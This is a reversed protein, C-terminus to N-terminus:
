QANPETNNAANIIKIVIPYHDSTFVSPLIDWELDGGIDATCISIDVSSGSIHTPINSNLCLLNNENLLNDIMRGRTDCRYEDWSPHHANLDGLLIFSTGLQTIVDQLSTKTVCARPPLYISEVTVIKNNSLFVKAAVVQLESQIELTSFTCSSHIYIAVGGQFRKNFHGQKCIGNYGPLKAMYNNGYFTEQLALVVPNYEHISKILEEKAAGM